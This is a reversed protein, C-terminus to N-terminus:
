GDRAVKRARSITAESPQRRWEQLIAGVPYRTAAKTWSRTTWNLSHAMVAVLKGCETVGQTVFGLRTGGGWALLVWPAAYSSKWRLGREPWRALITKWGDELVLDPDLIEVCAPCLRAVIGGKGDTLHWWDALPGPERPVDRQDGWM